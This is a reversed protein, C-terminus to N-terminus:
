DWNEETCSQTNASVGEIGANNFAFDLRGYRTNIQEILSKVEIDRSVDCPIFFGKGGFSEITKLTASEKDEICDAIIVHAGRQAFAIATAQGIGFSGGTVLAVKNEFDFTTYM